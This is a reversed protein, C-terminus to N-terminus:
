GVMDARTIERRSERGRFGTTRSGGVVGLRMDDGTGRRRIDPNRVDRIWQDAAAKEKQELTAGDIGEVYLQHAIHRKRSVWLIDISRHVGFTQIM